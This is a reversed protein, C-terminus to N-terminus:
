KEDKPKSFHILEAPTSFDFEKWSTVPVQIYAMSATPLAEVKGTVMQLFGELVPNHGIVLACDCSDPLARVESLYSDVEGQYLSSLFHIDGRFSLEAALLDATEHTRVAASALIVQPVPEKEKLVKAMTVANKKGRKSLTRDWDDKHKEEMSSKAHRMLILTKM